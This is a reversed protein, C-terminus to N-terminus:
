SIMKIKEKRDTIILLLTALLLAGMIVIASIFGGGTDPNEIFVAEVLVNSSPMTFKYDTVKIINGAEDTVKVESLVYGKDPKVEITVGQGAGATPTITITGNGTVKKEIEYEIKLKVFVADLTSGDVLYTPRINTTGNVNSLPSMQTIINSGLDLSNIFAEGCNSYIEQQNAVPEDLFLIHGNNSETTNSVPDPGGNSMCSVMFVAAPDNYLKVLMGSNVMNTFQATYKMQNNSSIKNNQKIISSIDQTYLEKGSLSYKIVKYSIKNNIYDRETKLVNISSSSVTATYYEDITKYEIKVLEGGSSNYIAFYYKNNTPDFTTIFSYGKEYYGYHYNNPESNHKKIIFAYVGAYKDITADDAESLDIETCDSTSTIDELSGPCALVKNEMINLVYFENSKVQVYYGDIKAMELALTTYLSSYKENYDTGEFEKIFEGNSKNYQKIKDFSILTYGDNTEEAFIYDEEENFAWEYSYTEKASVIFPILLLLILLIKKKM